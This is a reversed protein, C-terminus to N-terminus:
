PWVVEVHEGVDRSVVVFTHIVCFELQEVDGSALEVEVIRQPGHPCDLAQCSECDFVDDSQEAAESGSM